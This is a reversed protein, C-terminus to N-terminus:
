GNGAKEGGQEAVGLRKHMIPSTTTYQLPIKKAPNLHAAVGFAALAAEHFGSLILKKKGPYTNIDGVAFVGPINTQFKETDVVIARKDLQLGWDAIPGLRPHLGFFVLAHDAELEVLEGQTTKVRVGRFQGGEVLISHAIGEVYRMSGNAVLEKMKAVSAPAARFEPRRHVLTLSRAKGALELTWDLASDGGGFILLRKGTFDAASKVRYHIHSGEFAEAGECGLRRPQFSGLGAAIIVTKAHFRTDLSTRVLFTGDELRKLETAEQGLHFQANFPKIQELLRDILEQATCVPIAPIDYIPKDPYLESCQGGPHKLSDVVHAHIGLLGLEFVQFLGCPGAGIIVADTQIAGEILASEISDSM